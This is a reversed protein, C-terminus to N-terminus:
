YHAYRNFIQWTLFYSKLSSQMSTGIVFDLDSLHRNQHWGVLESAPNRVHVHQEATTVKVIRIPQLLNVSSIYDSFTRIIKLVM